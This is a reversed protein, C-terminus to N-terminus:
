RPKTPRGTGTRSSISSGGGGGGGGGDQATVLPHPYVLPTYPYHVQAVGSSFTAQHSGVWDSWVTKGGTATPAAMFFDRGEQIMTPDNADQYDFDASTFASGDLTNNWFHSNNIQDLSPWTAQHGSVSDDETLSISGTGGAMINSWVLLSGGRMNMYRYTASTCQSMDNMYIEIVLPGRLVDSAPPTGSTASGGGAGHHEYPLPNSGTDTFRWRNYRVVYRVGQGSTIQENVGTITATQVFDNNEIYLSNTGCTTGSNMPYSYILAGGLPQIAIDCNVFTNQDIVGWCNVGVVGVASYCNYFYCHDVRWNTLLRNTSETLGEIVVPGNPWSSGYSPQTFAINHIRFSKNSTPEFNIVGSAGSLVTGTSVNTGAGNIVIAKDIVLHSAWTSSGAPIQLTDGDSCANYATTVDALSTSAATQTAAFGNCISCLIWALSVWKIM